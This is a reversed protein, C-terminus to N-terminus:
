DYLIVEDKTVPNNSQPTRPQRELEERVIQRLQEPLDLAQHEVVAVLNDLLWRNATGTTHQQRDYANMAAVIQHLKSYYRQSIYLTQRPADDESPVYEEVFRQLEPTSFKLPM